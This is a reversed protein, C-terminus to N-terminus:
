CLSAAESSAVHRSADHIGLIGFIEFNPGGGSFDQMRGQICTYHEEFYRSLAIDIVACLTHCSTRLAPLQVMICVDNHMANHTNYQSTYVM